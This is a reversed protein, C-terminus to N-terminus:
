ADEDLARAVVPEELQQLGGHGRDHDTFVVDTREDLGAADLEAPSEVVLARYGLARALEALNTAVPTASYLVLGPPAVHPELYVEVEGLEHTYRSTRPEEAALVDAAEARAATDFEACGLTGESARGGAAIVM